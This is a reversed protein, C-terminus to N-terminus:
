KLEYTKAEQDVTGLAVDEEQGYLMMVIYIHFCVFWHWQGFEYGNSNVTHGQVPQGVTRHKM